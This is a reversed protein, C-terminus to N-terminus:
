RGRLSHLLFVPDAIQSDLNDPPYRYTVGGKQIYVAYRAEGAVRAPEAIVLEDGSSLTVTVPDSPM